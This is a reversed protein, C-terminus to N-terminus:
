HPPSPHSHSFTLGCAGFANEMAESVDATITFTGKGGGTKKSDDKMDKWRKKLGRMIRKLKKKGAAGNWKVGSTTQLRTAM